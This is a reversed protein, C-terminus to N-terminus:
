ERDFWKPGSTKSKKDKVPLIPFRREFAHSLMSDFASAVDNM